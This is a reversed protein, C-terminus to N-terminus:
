YQLRVQRKVALLISLSMKIAAFVITAVPFEPIATTGQVTITLAKPERILVLKSEGFDVPEYDIVMGDESFVALDGGVLRSPLLTFTRVVM